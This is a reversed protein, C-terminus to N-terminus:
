NRRTVRISRKSGAKQMRFSGLSGRRVVVKDGEEIRSKASDAQLWVQGNDLTVIIKGSRSHQIRKVGAELKDIHENGTAREMTRQMEESNKGFLEEESIGTHAPRTDLREDKPGTRQKDNDVASDYCALRAESSALDRCVSLEDRLEGARTALPAATLFLISVSVLTVHTVAIGM